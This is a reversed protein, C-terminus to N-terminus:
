KPPEKDVEGSLKEQILAVMKNISGMKAKTIEADEIAISWATEMFSVLEVVGYSDLVGLELLSEDLPISDKDFSCVHNDLVYDILVTGISTDPTNM